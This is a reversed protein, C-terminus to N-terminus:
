QQGTSSCNMIVRLMVFQSVAKNDPQSAPLSLLDLVSVAGNAESTRCQKRQCAFFGFLQRSIWGHSQIASYASRPQHKVCPKGSLTTQVGHLCYGTSKCNSVLCAHLQLDAHMLEISYMCLFVALSCSHLGWHSFIDM